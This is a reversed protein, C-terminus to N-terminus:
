DLAPNRLFELARQARLRQGAENVHYGDADLHAAPVDTFFEVVSGAFADRLLVNGAVIHSCGNIECRWTPPTTAVYFPLGAADATARQTLYADRIEVGSRGQLVDNTGFALVLADPAPSAALGTAMQQTADSPFVLNPTVTAGEVAVNVVQVDPDGIEDRVLECWKPRTRQFSTNSDGVCGLVYLGDGDLDEFRVPARERVVQFHARRDNVLLHFVAGGPEGHRIAGVLRGRPRFRRMPKPRPAKVSSPNEASALVRVQAGDIALHFIEPGSSRRRVMRVEGPAIRAVLQADAPGEADFSGAVIRRELDVILLEADDRGTALYARKGDVAIANVRAGIELSWLVRPATDDSADIAFLEDFRTRAVTGVLFTQRDDLGALALPRASSPLALAGTRTQVVASSRAPYVLVLLILWLLRV